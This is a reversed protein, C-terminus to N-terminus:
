LPLYVVLWFLIHIHSLIIYSVYIYSSKGAVLLTKWFDLLRQCNGVVAGVAWLDSHTENTTETPDHTRPPVLRRHYFNPNIFGM